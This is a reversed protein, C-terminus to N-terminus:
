VGWKRLRKFFNEVVEWSEDNSCGALKASLYIFQEKEKDSLRESHAIVGAYQKYLTLFTHWSVSVLKGNITTTSESVKKRRAKRHKKIQKYISASDDSGFGPASGLPTVVGAIAGVSCAGTSANERVKTIENIKMCNNIGYGLKKSEAIAKDYLLQGLGTGKWNEEITVAGWM